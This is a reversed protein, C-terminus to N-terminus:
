LLHVYMRALTYYRERPACVRGNHEPAAADVGTGVFRPSVLGGVPVGVASGVHAGSLM